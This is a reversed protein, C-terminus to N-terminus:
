PMPLTGPQHVMSRQEAVPLCSVGTTCGTGFTSGVQVTPHCIWSGEAAAAPQCRVELDEIILPLLGVLINLCLTVDLGNLYPIINIGQRWVGASSDAHIRSALKTLLYKRVM